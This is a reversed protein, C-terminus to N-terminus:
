DGQLAAWYALYCAGVIKVRVADDVSAGAGASVEEILELLHDVYRTAVDRRGSLTAGFVLLGSREIEEVASKAKWQRLSRFAADAKTRLALDFGESRLRLEIQLLALAPAREPDIDVAELVETAWRDCFILMWRFNRRVLNEADPIRDLELLYYLPAAIGSMRVGEPGNELRIRRQEKTEPEAIARAVRRAALRVSRDPDRRRHGQRVVACCPRDILAAVQDSSVAEDLVLDASFARYNRAASLARGITYQALGM